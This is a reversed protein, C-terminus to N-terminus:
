YKLHNQTMRQYVTSTQPHVAAQQVAIGEPIYVPPAPVYGTNFIRHRIAEQISTDGPTPTPANPATLPATISGAKGAGSACKSLPDAYWAWLPITNQHDDELSNKKVYKPVIIPPSGLGAPELTNPATHEPSPLPPPPGKPTESAGPAVM